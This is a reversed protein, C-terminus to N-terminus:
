ESELATELAQLHKKYRRHWGIEDSNLAERLRRYDAITAVGEETFKLCRPEWDLGLFEILRRSEKETDAVLDEYSVDLIKLSSVGRWHDMLRQYDQLYAGIHALDYAYSMTPDIFDKLFCAVGVDKPDRACHVIRAHPFLLEILGIHLFNSPLTDTVRKADADPPESKQLYVEAFEDLTKADISGVSMPYVVSPGGMEVSIRSVADLEGAGYVASHSAAIQEFISKGSRPMGLVFVPRESENSSRPLAKLRDASFAEMIADVHERFADPSFQAAKSENAKAIYEFAPEPKGASDYLQGLAFNLQVYGNKPIRVATDSELLPEILAIADEPAGLRKKVVAYAQALDPTVRGASLVPELLALGEEARGAGALLEVLGSLAVSHEPSDELATRFSTEAAEYRCMSQLIAGRGAHADIYGPDVSLAKDAADLAEGLRNRAHYVMSLNNFGPAYGPMLEVTKAFCTEASELDGMNLYTAGLNNLVKVNEPELELVQELFRKANELDGRANKVAAMHHLAPIFSPDKDIALQFFRQAEDLDNRSAAAVGLNNLADVCEPDAALAAEFAEVAADLQGMGGLLEGRVNHFRSEDPDLDMARTLNAQAEAAQGLRVQTLALWLVPEADDPAQRAARELQASALEYRGQRFHDLGKRFARSTQPENTTM